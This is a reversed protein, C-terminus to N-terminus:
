YGNDTRDVLAERLRDLHCAFNGSDEADALRQPEAFGVAPSHPLETQRVGLAGIDPSSGASSDDPM